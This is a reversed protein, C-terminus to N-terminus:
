IASGHPGRKKGRREALFTLVETIGSGGNPAVVTAHQKARPSQTVILINLYSGNERQERRTATLLEGKRRVPPIEWGNRRLWDRFDAILALPLISRSRETVM